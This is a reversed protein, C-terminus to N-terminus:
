YHAWKEAYATQSTLDLYENYVDDNISWGGAIFTPKVRIVVMSPRDEWNQIAEPFRKRILEVYQKVNDDSFEGLIEARGEIQVYDRCLAVESNAEIQQCKRSHKWTFIYLDFGDNVVLVNRVMVRNDASTALAMVMNDDSKMFELIEQQKKEFDIERRDNKDTM